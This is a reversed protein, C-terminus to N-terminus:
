RPRTAKSIPTPPSMTLRRRCVVCRSSRGSPAPTVPPGVIYGSAGRLLAEIVQFESADHFEVTIPAGTLREANVLQTGGVRAWEALISRLTANQASLDVKGGRFSVKVSQASVPVVGAFLVGASVAVSAVLIRLRM